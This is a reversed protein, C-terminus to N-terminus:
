LLLSSFITRSSQLAFELVKICLNVLRPHCVSLQVYDIMLSSHSQLRALFKEVNWISYVHFNERPPLKEYKELNHVSQLFEGRLFLLVRIVNICSRYSIWLFQGLLRLSSKAFYVWTFIVMNVTHLSLMANIWPRVLIPVSITLDSFLAM